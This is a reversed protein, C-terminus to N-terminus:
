PLQNDPPRPKEPTTEPLPQEPPTTVETNTTQVPTAPSETPLEPQSDKMTKSVQEEIEQSLPSHILSNTFDIEQVHLDNTMRLPTKRYTFLVANENKPDSKITSLDGPKGTDRIRPLTQNLIESLKEYSSM